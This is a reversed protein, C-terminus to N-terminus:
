EQAGCNNILAESFDDTIPQGGLEKCLEYYERAKNCDASVLYCSSLKYSTNQDTPDLQFSKLLYRIATELHDFAAKSDTPYLRYYQVMFYTAYDTLLHTNDPATALGEEYQQKARDYQELTMYVAGYGWYIDSNESDLLYAQNFRYMATKLDGRYLYGFGVSIMYNSTATRDDKLAEQKMMEEIFDQDLQQLEASKQVLGYKPLLRINTKAEKDWQEATIQQGFASLTFIILLFTLINKMKSASIYGIGM